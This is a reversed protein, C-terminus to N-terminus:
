REDEWREVLCDPTTIICADPNDPDYIVAQGNEEVLDLDFGDTTGPRQHPPDCHEWNLIQTVDESPSRESRRDTM